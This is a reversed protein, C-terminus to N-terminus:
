EEKNLFKEALDEYLTPMKDYFQQLAELMVGRIIPHAHKACRMSFIHRWERLNAGITIEAKLGIPLVSRAIEAPVGEKILSLYSDEANQMAMRWINRKWDQHAEARIKNMEAKAEEETDGPIPGASPGPEGLSPQEIVTIQTEYKGKSYNCFRTSEQAYSCLRHRVLEHTLGRDGVIKAMAYGFELMAYHGREMLKKRIFNSASDETIRDESKYCTRAAAEITQEPTKGDESLFFTIEISPKVIKM